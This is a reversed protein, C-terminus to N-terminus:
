RLGESQKFNSAAVKGDLFAVKIWKSSGGWKYWKTASKRPTMSELTGGVGIAGAVPSGEAMNLEVDEEGPGGLLTQVDALPMGAEIKDYNEKTLAKNGKCGAVALCVLCVVAAVRKM